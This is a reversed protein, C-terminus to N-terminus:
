IIELERDFTEQAAIAAVDGDGWYDNFFSPELWPGPAIRVYGPTGSAGVEVRWNSPVEDSVLDFESAPHWGPQQLKDDLVLFRVGKTDSAMIALVVYEKGVTLCAHGRREGNDTRGTVVFRVRM